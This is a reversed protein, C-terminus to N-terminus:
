GFSLELEPPRRPRISRYRARRPRSLRRRRMPPDPRHTATLSILRSLLSLDATSLRDAARRRLSAEAGAITHHRSSGADNPGGGMSNRVKTVRLMEDRDSGLAQGVIEKSLGNSYVDATDMLNVGTVGVPRYGHTKTALLRHDSHDIADDNVDSELTVTCTATEGMSDVASVGRVRVTPPLRSLVVRFM